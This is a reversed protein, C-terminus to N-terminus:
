LDPQPSPPAGAPEKGLGWIGTGRASIYLFVFAYLAAAEGGNALPHWGNPAHGIWYAAAAMGSCLFAVPRTFLGVVVLAGGILEIPGAVWQIHLPRDPSIPMFKALGHLFFLLGTVIRMLAYTQEQYKSMFSAM